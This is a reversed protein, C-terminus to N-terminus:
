KLGYPFMGDNPRLINDALFCTSSAKVAHVDGGHLDVRDKIIFLRDGNICQIKRGAIGCGIKIHDHSIPIKFFLANGVVKHHQHVASQGVLKIFCAIIKGIFPDAGIIQGPPILVNFVHLFLLIDCSVYLSFISRM